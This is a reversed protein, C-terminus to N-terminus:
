VGSQCRPIFGNIAATNQTHHLSQIFESNLSHQESNVFGSLMVGDSYIQNHYAHGDVEELRADALFVMWDGSGPGDAGEIFFQWVGLVGLDDVHARWAFEVPSTITAAKGNTVIAVHQDDLTITTSRCDGFTGFLPETTISPEAFVHKNIVIGITVLVAIVAIRRWYSTFAM